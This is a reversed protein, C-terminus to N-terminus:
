AAEKHLPKMRVAKNIGEVDTVAGANATRSFEEDIKTRGRGLIRFPVGLPM